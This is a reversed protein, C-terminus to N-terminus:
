HCFMLRTESDFDDLNEHDLYAEVFTAPIYTTIDAVEIPVLAGGAPCDEITRIDIPQNGRLQVHSAILSFVNTPYARAQKDVLAGDKDYIGTMKGTRFRLWGQQSADRLTQHYLMQTGKRRCDRPAVDLKQGDPMRVEMAEALIFLPGNGDVEALHFRRLFGSCLESIATVRRDADLSMWDSKERDFGRAGTKTYGLVTKATLAQAVQQWTPPQPVVEVVRQQPAHVTYSLSAIGGLGPIGSDSELLHEGYELVVKKSSRPSLEALFEGDITIRCGLPSMCRLLIKGQPSTSPSPLPLPHDTEKKAPRAGEKTATLQAEEASVHKSWLIHGALSWLALAALCLSSHRINM